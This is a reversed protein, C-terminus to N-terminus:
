GGSRKPHFGMEQLLLIIKDRHDGQIELEGEKVTGGTGLRAKFQKLTKGLDDPNMNLGSIVSVTKGGRGKKDLRVRVQRGASEAPLTHGQKTQKDKRPVNQETSYVLESRDRMIKYSVLVPVFFDCASM